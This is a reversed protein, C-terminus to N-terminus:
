FGDDTDYSTSAATDWSARSSGGWDASREESSFDQKSYGSNGFCEMVMIPQPVPAYPPMIPANTMRENRAKRTKAGPARNLGKGGSTGFNHAQQGKSDMPADVVEATVPPGSNGWSCGHFHAACKVAANRDTLHILAKGFDQDQGLICALINNTLGAQDLMAELFNNRCLALPLDQLNVYVPVNEQRQGQPVQFAGSIQPASNQWPAPAVTRNPEQPQQKNQPRRRNANWQPKARRGDNQSERFGASNNWNGNTMENSNQSNQYNVQPMQYCQQTSPTAWPM